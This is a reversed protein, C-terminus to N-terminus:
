APHGRSSRRPTSCSKICFTEPKIKFAARGALVVILALRDLIVIEDNENVAIAFWDRENEGQQRRGARPMCRDVGWGGAYSTWRHRDSERPQSIEVRTVIAGVCSRTSIQAFRNGLNTLEGRETAPSLRAVTVHSSRRWLPSESCRLNVISVFTMRALCRISPRSSAVM